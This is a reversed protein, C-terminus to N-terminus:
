RVVGTAGLVLGTFLGVLGWGFVMASYLITKSKVRLNRVAAILPKLWTARGLIAIFLDWFIIEIKELLHKM